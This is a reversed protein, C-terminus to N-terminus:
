GPLFDVWLGFLLNLDLPVRAIMAEHFHLREQELADVSYDSPVSIDLMVWCRDDEDPDDLLGVRFARMAPFSARVIDCATLFAAEANNKRLVDRVGAEIVPEAATAATM